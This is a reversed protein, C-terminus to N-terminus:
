HCNKPNTTIKAKSNIITEVKSNRRFDTSSKALNRKILSTKMISFRKTYVFSIFTDKRRKGNEWYFDHNKPM